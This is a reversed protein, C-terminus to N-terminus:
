RQAILECEPGVGSLLYYLSKVGSLNGRDLHVVYIWDERSISVIGLQSSPFQVFFTTVFAGGKVMLGM